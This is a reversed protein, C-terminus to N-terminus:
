IDMRISNLPPEARYRNRRILVDIVTIDAVCNFTHVGITRRDWVPLIKHVEKESYHEPTLSEVENITMAYGYSRSSDQSPRYLVNNSWFLRGAPRASRVDSVIPNRAHPKWPGLLSESYYLHLEDWNVTAGEEQINVFMWWRHDAEIVTADLPCNAEILVKVPQWEFPFNVARYLEVVDRDGTEPIMYYDGQWEFVFPYSLHSDLKLAETPGSVIGNQDVEIVSIHARGASYVYDEFFIYYKGNVKLPFPDAWFHGSEPILYRFEGNKIRYALMWQQFSSLKELTRSVARTSLKLFMQLMAGNTPHKLSTVSNTDLSEIPRGAHLDKLIRAVFAASKWYVTNQNLRASFKSLTPSVSRYIVQERDGKRSRLESVMTPSYAAEQFGLPDEFFYFWIGYRAADALEANCEMPGFNIIVDLQANKIREFGEEPVRGTLLDEVSVSEVADAPFFVRDISNYLQYLLGRDDRTQQSPRAIVELSVVGTALMKELCARVWRPQVVSDIILGIRLPATM